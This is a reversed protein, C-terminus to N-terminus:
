KSNQISLRDIVPKWKLLIKNFENTYFKVEDESLEKTSHRNLEYKIRQSIFNYFKESKSIEVIKNEISSLTFKVTFIIAVVITLTTLFLKKYFNM